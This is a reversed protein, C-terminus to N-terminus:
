GVMCIDDSRCPKPFPCGRYLSTLSSTFSAFVVHSVGQRIAVPEVFGLKVDTGRARERLLGWEMWWNDADGGAQASRELHSFTVPLRFCQPSCVVDLLKLIAMLWLSVLFAIHIPHSAVYVKDSWRFEVNERYKWIGFVILVATAM